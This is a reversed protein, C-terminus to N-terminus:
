CKVFVAGDGGVDQGGFMLSDGDPTFVALQGEGRSEIGLKLGTQDFLFAPDEGVRM